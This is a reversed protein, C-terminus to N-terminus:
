VLEIPRVICHQASDFATNRGWRRGFLPSAGRLAIIMKMKMRLSTTPFASAAGRSAAGACPHIPQPLCVCIDAAMGALVLGPVALEALFRLTQPTSGPYKRSASSTNKRLRCSSAYSLQRRAGDRTVIAITAAPDSHLQGHRDSVYIRPIEWARDCGKEPFFVRRRKGRRRFARKAATSTFIM